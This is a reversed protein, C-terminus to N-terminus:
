EAMPCSHGSVYTWLKLLHMGSDALCAFQVEKCPPIRQLAVCFKDEAAAPPPCFVLLSHPFGIAYVVGVLQMLIMPACSSTQQTLM